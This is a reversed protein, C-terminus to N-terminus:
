LSKHFDVARINVLVSAACVISALTIDNGIFASSAPQKPSAIVAVTLGAVMLKAAHKVVGDADDTTVATMKHFQPFVGFYLRTRATPVLEVGPARRVSM